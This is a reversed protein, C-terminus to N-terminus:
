LIIHFFHQLDLCAVSSLIIRLTRKAHKNVLAVLVCESFTIGVPKEGCCHNRLHPVNNVNISVNGEKNRKV